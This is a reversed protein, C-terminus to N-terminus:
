FQLKSIEDYAQVVKNRIQVTLEMALQSQELQIMAEPVDLQGSLAKTAAMHADQTMAMARDVASGLLSGFGNADQSEAGPPVFAKGIQYDAGLSIM